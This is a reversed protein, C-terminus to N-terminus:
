CTSISRGCAEAQLKLGRGLRSAKCQMSKADRRMKIQKLVGPSRPAVPVGPEQAKPPPSSPPEAAVATVGEMVPHDDAVAVAKKNKKPMGVKKPKGFAMSESRFLSVPLTLM